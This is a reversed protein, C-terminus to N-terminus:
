RDVREQGKRSAKDVHYFCLYIREGEVEKYHSAPKGCERYHGADDKTIFQCRHPERNGIRYIM